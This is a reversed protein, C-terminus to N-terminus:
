DNLVKDKLEEKFGPTDTDPPYSVSIYINFPKLEMQLAEALGRIAFKTASYATYGYVGIQGAQSSVFLIRGFKRSKMSDVVSKTCYVGGLYNVRM